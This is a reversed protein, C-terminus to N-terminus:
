RSTPFPESRRSRAGWPEEELLLGNALYSITRYWGALVLFELLQADETTSAWPIGPPNHFNHQTTCNTSPMSYHRM